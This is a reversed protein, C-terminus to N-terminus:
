VGEWWWERRPNRFQAALIVGGVDPNWWGAGVDPGGGDGGGVGDPSFGGGPDGGWRYSRGM